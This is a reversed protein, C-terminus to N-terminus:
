LHLSDPYRWYSFYMHLPESILKSLESLMYDSCSFPGQHGSNHSSGNHRRVHVRNRNQLVSHVIHFNGVHWRQLINPRFRLLDLKNKGDAILM